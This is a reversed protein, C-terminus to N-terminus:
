SETWYAMDQKLYTYFNSTEDATPIRLRVQRGMLSTATVYKFHFIENM